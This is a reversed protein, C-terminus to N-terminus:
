YIGCSLNAYICNKVHSTLKHMYQSVIAYYARVIANKNLIKPLLLTMRDTVVQQLLGLPQSKPLFIRYLYFDSEEIASSVSMSSEPTSLWHRQAALIIDHFVNWESYYINYDYLSHSRWIKGSAVDLPFCLTITQRGDTQTDTGDAYLSEGPFLMCRPWCVNQDVTLLVM